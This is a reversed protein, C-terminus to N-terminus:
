QSKLRFFRQPFAADLRNTLNLTGSVAVETSLDTWHQLDASAQLMYSRSAMGKFQFRLGGEVLQTVAGIEGAADSLFPSDTRTAHRTPIWWTWPRCRLHFTLWFVRSRPQASQAPLRPPANPVKGERRLGGRALQALLDAFFGQTLDEAEHPQRGQRRVFAYIPYRYKSCLRDLAHLADPRQAQAAGLVMSWRTTIFRDNSNAVTGM